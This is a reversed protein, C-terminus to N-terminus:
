AELRPLEATNELMQLNDMHYINVMRTLKIDTISNRSDKFYHTLLTLRHVSITKLNEQPATVM